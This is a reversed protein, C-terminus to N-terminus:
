RRAWTRKYAGFQLQDRIVGNKIASQPLRGELVYGAKELV